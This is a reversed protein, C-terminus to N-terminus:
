KEGNMYKYMVDECDYKSINLYKYVEKDIKPAFKPYLIRWSYYDALHVICVIDRYLRNSNFPHSHNLAVEVIPYPLQWWNLIFSGLEEHTFEFINKEEIGLNVDISGDKMKLLSEYKEDFLKLFVVKGIDHLLGATSYQDPIKKKYIKEYFEISLINTLNSHEWLLNKYYGNNLNFLENSVIIAKLNALGLNLVATKISGTKMGYFSSNATKLIKSATTQDQNILNIIDDINSNDDEILKNIKNFLIKLNDNNLKDYTEFIDRIKIILDENEWPKNICIKAIDNNIAKFIIREDAYGSLVIKIIDPNICKIRKLLEYGNMEPMMLDSVVMSIDKNEYLIRLAEKGSDAYYTNFESDFFERRIAKLIAKEDDVFLISKTM